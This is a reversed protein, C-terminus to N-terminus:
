IINGEEVYTITGAQMGMNQSPMYIIPVEGITVNESPTLAYAEMGQFFVDWKAYTTGKYVYTGNLKGIIIQGGMTSLDVTITKGPAVAWDFRRKDNDLCYRVDWAPLNSEAFYGETDRASWIASAKEDLTKNDLATVIIDFPHGAAQSGEKSTMTEYDTIRYMQGATLNAADRLAVLEEWTVEIMMPASGGEGGGEPLAEVKDLLADIEAGKYKSTYGM